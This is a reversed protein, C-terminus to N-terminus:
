RDFNSNKSFNGKFKTVKKCYQLLFDFSLESVDEYREYLAAFNLILAYM